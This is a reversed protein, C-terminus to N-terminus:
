GPLYVLQGNVMQGVRGIDTWGKRWRDGGKGGRDGPGHVCGRRRRSGPTLAPPRPATSWTRGRRRGATAPCWWGGAGLPPLGTTEAPILPRRTRLVVWTWCSDKCIVGVTGIDLRGEDVKHAVLVAGQRVHLVPKEGGDDRGVPGVAPPGVGGVLGVGGAEGEAEVGAQVVVRGVGGHLGGHQLHEGTRCVLHDGRDM